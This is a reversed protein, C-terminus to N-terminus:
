QILTMPLGPYPRNIELYYSGAPYTLSGATSNNIALTLTNNASIRANELTVLTNPFAGGIYSIDSVQDGVQLGAITFSQEATTTAATAVFTLSVTLVFTSQVNGNTLIQPGLPM